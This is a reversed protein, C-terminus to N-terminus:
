DCVAARTAFELSGERGAVGVAAGGRFCVAGARLGGVAVAEVAEVACHEGWCGGHVGFLGGGGGGVVWGFGGFWAGPGL